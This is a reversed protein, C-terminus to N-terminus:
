EGNDGPVPEFPAVREQGDEGLLQDIRLEARKLMAQCQRALVVGREFRSLAEELGIEGTELTEVLSELEAVSNEFASLPPEDHTTKNDDESM